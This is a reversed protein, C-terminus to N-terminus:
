DAPSKNIRAYMNPFKKLKWIVKAIKWSDNFTRYESTATGTPYQCHVPVTAIALGLELIKFIIEIEMAFGTEQCKLRNWHKTEFLRFGCQIDPINQGIIRSLMRSALINLLMRIFPTEKRYMVKDHFRNGIYLAKPAKEYSELLSPIDQPLHQYDADMTIVLQINHNISYEIGTKLAAGKGQNYPHSLVKCGEFSKALEASGDTSGDDIVIIDRTYKQAGRIVNGLTKVANYVPIIIAFNKMMQGLSGTTKKLIRM